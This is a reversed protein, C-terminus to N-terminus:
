ACLHRRVSEELEFLRSQDAQADGEVAGSWLNVVGEAAQGAGIRAGDLGDFPGVFGSDGDLDVGGDAAVVSVIEIVKAIQKFLKGDDHPVDEEENGHAAALEVVQKGTFVELPDEALDVLQRVPDAELDLGSFGHVVPAVQELVIQFLPLHAMSVAM